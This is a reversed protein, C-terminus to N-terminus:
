WEYYSAGVPTYSAAPAYSGKGNRAKRVREQHERVLALVQAYAGGLWDKLDALLACQEDYEQEALEEPFLHRSAHWQEFTVGDTAAGQTLVDEVMEVLTPPRGGRPVTAHRQFQRGLFILSVLFTDVENGPICHLPRAYDQFYSVNRCWSLLPDRPLASGKDEERARQAEATTMAGDQWAGQWVAITPDALCPDYAPFREACAREMAEWLREVDLAEAQHQEAWRQGAQWGEELMSAFAPEIGVLIFRMMDRHFAWGNEMAATTDNDHM